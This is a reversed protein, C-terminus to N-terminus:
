GSGRLSLSLPSVCTEEDVKFRFSVFKKLLSQDQAITIASPLRLAALLNMPPHEAEITKENTPLCTFDPYHQEITAISEKNQKLRRLTSLTKTMGLALVSRVTRERVQSVILYFELGDFFLPRQASNTAPEIEMNDETESYGEDSMDNGEEEPAEDSMDSGEEEPAEDSMDSGEEEPAEDDSWASLGPFDTKHQSLIAANKQDARVQTEM